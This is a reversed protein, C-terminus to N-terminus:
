KSGVKQALFAMIVGQLCLVQAGFMPSDIRLNLTRTGEPVLLLKSGFDPGRLAAGFLVQPTQFMM